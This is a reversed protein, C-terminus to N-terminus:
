SGVSNYLEHKFTAGTGGTADDYGRELEVALSPRSAEGSGADMEDAEAQDARVNLECRWLRRM